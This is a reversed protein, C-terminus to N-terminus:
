QALTVCRTMRVGLGVPNCAETQNSAFDDPLKAKVEVLSVVSNSLDSIKETIIGVMSQTLFSSIKRKSEIRLVVVTKRFM